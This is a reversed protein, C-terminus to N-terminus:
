ENKVLTVQNDLEKGKKKKKEIHHYSM